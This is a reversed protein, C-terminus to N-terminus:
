PSLHRPPLVHRPEPHTHLPDRRPAKTEQPCGLVEVRSLSVCAALALASATLLSKLSKGDRRIRALLSRDARKMEWKLPNEKIGAVGAGGGRNPNEMQSM